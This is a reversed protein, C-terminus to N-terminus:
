TLKEELQKVRLRLDQIVHALMAPQLLVADDIMRQNDYEFQDQEMAPAEVRAPNYSQRADYSQPRGIASRDLWSITLDNM